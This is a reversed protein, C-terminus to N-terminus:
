ATAQHVAAIVRETQEPPMAPFFPLSVVQACAREADPFDGAKYGLGALAPQLHVPIPYHVLTEVGMEALKARVHARNDVLIPFLHYSHQAGSTLSPLRARAGRLGDLYRAALARRRQLWGELRALKVRLFAAQLADLRNNFGLELAQDREGYGYVRLARARHALKSDNTVVCGGDGLAGLNKTPYFSFAALHGFGGVARGNLTTGTAQACDEIVTINRGNAWEMLPQMLVANGYLHVAIVAKTKSTAAATLAGIRLQLTEADCDVLRLTAGTRLIGAATPFCTNAVTIVEDGRGVGAAALAVAIAETGCSVGIAHTVGVAHAFEREFAEVEPGLIFRGSNLVRKFASTAEERIEDIEASFDIFPVQM